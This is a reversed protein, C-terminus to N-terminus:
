LEPRCKNANQKDSDFEIEANAAIFLIYKPQPYLKEYEDITFGG